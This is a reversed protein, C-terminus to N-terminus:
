PLNKEIAYYIEQLNKDSLILIIRESQQNKEILITEEIFEGADIRNIPIPDIINNVAHYFYPASEEYNALLYIRLLLDGASKNGLAAVRCSIEFHNIKDRIDAEVTFYSLEKIKEDIILNTREYVNVSNSAGQVRSLPGNIFVDPVGSRGGAINLYNQYLPNVNDLSRPDIYATSNRHYILLVIRNGYNDKLQNLAELAYQNYQPQNEDESVTVFGELVVVSQRSSASNKPDLLNDRDIEACYSIILINFISLLLFVLKIKM